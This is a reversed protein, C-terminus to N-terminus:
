WQPAAVPNRFLLLIERIVGSERPVLLLLAKKSCCLAQEGDGRFGAAKRSIATRVTHALVAAASTM